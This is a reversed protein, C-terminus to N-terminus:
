DGQSKLRNLFEEIDYDHPIYRLYDQFVTIAEKLLGEETLFYGYEKLFDTDESLNISANRYSQLAEKYNEVEEYARALEWDYLPEETGTSKTDVLMEIIETHRNREKLFEILFLIAELYDPDLAIAERVYEESTEEKNLQHAITAAIFYLNKNFSDIKLGEEATEFAEDLRGEEKLVNALNEYVAHYYPDLEIVRKWATIAIDNRKAQSATVGYKFYKDPSKENGIKFYDLAEEYKGAAAYSEALRDTVSVDALTEHEQLVKEYHTAAKHFEGISYYLEGLAFDIIVETPLIQKATLLKQEAVEFLGQAQYLDALQILAEIYAPDDEPIEDLIAIAYEDNEQEIYIDALSLKLDLENPYRQLLETLIAGAENLFGWKMYLDAITFKEDDNAKLLYDKLLKLAKEIKNEEVLEIARLITDM